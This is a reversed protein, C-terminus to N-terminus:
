RMASALLSELHEREDFYVGLIVLSHVTAGKRTVVVNGIPNGDQTIIAAYNDEGLSFLSPKEQLKRGSVLSSGMKYASIRTAFSEKALPVTDSIEAESKFFLVDESMPDKETDYEYELELSGDINHKAIYSECLSRDGPIVAYPALNDVTVLLRREDDRVDRSSVGKFSVLIVTAVVVAFVLFAAVIASGIVVMKKM